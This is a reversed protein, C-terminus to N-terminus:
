DRRDQRPYMTFLLMSLLLLAVVFSIGFFILGLNFDRATLWVVLGIFLSLVLSMVLLEVPRMRESKSPKSM